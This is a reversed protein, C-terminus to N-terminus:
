ETFSISKDKAPNQLRATSTVTASHDVPSVGVILSGLRDRGSSWSTEACDRRSPGIERSVEEGEEDM